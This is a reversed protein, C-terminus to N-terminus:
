KPGGLDRAARSEVDHFGQIMRLLSEYTRSVKVLDVVGRVVNVNSGELAGQVVRPPPGATPAGAATFLSGGDHRMAGPAFTALALSGVPGLETSVAGDEGISIQTAETPIQLPGGDASRVALGSTTRLTGTADVEFAGARTYRVGGPADVAFYGDGDLAVDLPNGTTAIAGPQLDVAPTLGGVLAVDPSRARSLAEAFTVRAARFGTTSANAVNNATVDLANSQAVAGAAAVYIGDSM